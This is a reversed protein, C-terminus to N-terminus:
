GLRGLVLGNCGVDGVTGQSLGLVDALVCKVDLLLPDAFRVVLVQGRQLDM